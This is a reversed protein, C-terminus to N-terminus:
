ALRGDGGMTGEWGGMGGTAGRGAPMLSESRRSAGRSYKCFMEGFARSGASSSASRWNWHVVDGM